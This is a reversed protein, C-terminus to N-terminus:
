IRREYVRRMAVWFKRTPRTLFYLPTLFRPFVHREIDSRVPFLAWKLWFAVRDRRRDLTRAELRRLTLQWPLSTRFLHERLPLILKGIGPDADRARCIATPLPTGLVESALVPGLIVMRESHCERARRIVTEWDTDDRRLLANLDAVWKLLEWRHRTGHVCFTLARDEPSLTRVTTGCISVQERRDWVTELDITTPFRRALVRWHLEISVNDCRRTFPYDRSFRTYAREQTTSLSETEPLQFDPEFGRELLLEKVDPIDAPRVLLDVDTFQRTSVDGYAVAGLVPGRYPLAPIDHEDLVGLFDHLVTTILLNRKATSRARDHLATLMADPVSDPCHERLARDVMPTIDHYQAGRVVAAWDLSQDVPKALRVGQETRSRICHVLLEDEPRLPPGTM